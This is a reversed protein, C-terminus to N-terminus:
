PTLKVKSDRKSEHKGVKERTHREFDLQRKWTLHNYDRNICVFDLKNFFELIKIDLDKDIYQSRYTVQLRTVSM